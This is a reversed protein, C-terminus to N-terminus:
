SISKLISLYSEKVKEIPYDGKTFIDLVKPNPAPSNAKGLKFTGRPNKVAINFM